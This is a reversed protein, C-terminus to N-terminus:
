VDTIGIASAVGDASAGHIEVACTAVDGYSSSIGAPIAFANTVAFRKETAGREGDATLLRAGVYTTSTVAAGLEAIVARIASPDIHDISIRPMGGTVICATPLKKGDSRKSTVNYGNSIRWGTMGPIDTNNFKFTGLTHLTPAASLAAVTTSSKTLPVADGDASLCHFEVDAMLFGGDSVSIGSIFGVAKSANQWQTVNSGYVGGSMQMLQAKVTVYDAPVMTLAALAAAAPVTCRIVSAGQGTALLGDAQTAGSQHFAEVSFGDEISLSTIPVTTSGVVLRGLTHITLAM